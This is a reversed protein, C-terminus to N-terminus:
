AKPVKVNIYHRGFLQAQKNKTITTNKDDYEGTRVKELFIPFFLDSKEQYFQDDLIDHIQKCNQTQKQLLSTSPINQWDINKPDVNEQEEQQHPIRNDQLDMSQKEFFLVDYTYEL